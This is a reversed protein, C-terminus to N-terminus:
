PAPPRTAKVLEALGLPTVAYRGRVTVSAYPTGGYASVTWEGDALHTRQLRGPSALSARSLRVGVVRSVRVGLAM